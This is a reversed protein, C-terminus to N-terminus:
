RSEAPWTEIVQYRAPGADASAALAIGGAQWRVAVPSSPVAAHQANWALTAHPRWAHKGSAECGAAAVANGVALHMERMEQTAEGCLVAVEDNWIEAQDLCILADRQQLERLTRRVATVQVEGLNGLYHLTVHLDGGLIPKAGSPWSWASRCADVQEIAHAPLMWAVFCRRFTTPTHETM